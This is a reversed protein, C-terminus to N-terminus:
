NHPNVIRFRVDAVYTYASVEEGVFLDIRYTGMPWGGEPRDLFFYGTNDNLELVVADIGVLTNPPMGDVKEAIWQTTIPMANSPPTTLSFVLYISPQSPSFTDGPDLPMYEHFGAQLEDQIASRATVLQRFWGRVVDVSLPLVRLPIDGKEFPSQASDSSPHPAREKELSPEPQSAAIFTDEDTFPSPIHGVHTRAKELAARIHALDPFNMAYFDQEKWDQIALLHEFQSIAEEWRGLKSLVHGIQFVADPYFPPHKSQRFSARLVTLAEEFKELEILTLGLNYHALDDAPDLRLVDRWTSEAEDYRGAAMLQWAKGRTLAWTKYDKGQEGHLQKTTEFFDARSGMDITGDHLTQSLNQAAVWAPSNPAARALVDELENQAEEINRVDFLARALFLRYALHSPDIAVAQQFYAVSEEFRRLERLKRAVHLQALPNRADIEAIQVLAQLAEEPNTSLRDLLAWLAWHGELFRPALDLARRYAALAEQNRRLIMLVDGRKKHLRPSTPHREIGEDLLTLAALFQFEELLEEAELVFPEIAESVQTPLAFSQLSTLLTMVGALMLTTFTARLGRHQRVSFNMGERNASLAMIFVAERM